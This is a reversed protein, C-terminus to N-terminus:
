SKKIPLSFWFVSGQGMKSECGIKGLLLKVLNKAISLGLGQGRSDANLAEASFSDSLLTEQIAEPIGLGTDIVQVILEYNKGELPATNVNIRVQGVQTFKFANSTLHLLIQRFRVADTEVMLPVSQSFFTEFRLGRQIAVPQLLGQIESVIERINVPQIFATQEKKESQSFELVDDILKMLANSSAQITNVYATQQQSLATERLLSLIGVIGNMPTRIEHSMTALFKSKEYSSKEAIDRALELDRTTLHLDSILTDYASAARLVNMSILSALIILAVLTIGSIPLIERLIAKASEAPEWLFYGLNEKENSVELFNLKKEKSSDKTHSFYISEINTFTRLNHVITTDIEQAFVLYQQKQSSELRAAADYSPQLEGISVLFPKENIMLLEKVIGLNFKTSKNRKLFDMLPPTIAQCETQNKIDGRSAAFEVEGRDNLIAALDMGLVKSVDNGINDDVWKKNFKLVINEYAQTWVSHLSNIYGLNEKEYAFSTKIASTSEQNTLEKFNIYSYIGISIISLLCLILAMAFYM